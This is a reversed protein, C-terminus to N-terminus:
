VTEKEKRRKWIGMEVKVRGKERQMGRDWIKEEDVGGREGGRQGKAAM